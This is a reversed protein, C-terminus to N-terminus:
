KNGPTIKMVARRNQLRGEPTSNDGVPANFGHGVTKLRLPSIGMNTLRTKVANARKLSLANNYAASGRSDTYGNITIIRTKDEKMETAANDILPYYSSHIVYEDFDFLIPMSIDTKAAPPAPPLPAALTFGAGNATCNNMRVIIGSYEGACLNNIVLSGDEKVMGSVAPQALNNLYYSVSVQSGAILGNFRVTGDCAGQITPSATEQSSISMVPNSLTVPEGNAKEKRITAVIGTYDGPCLNPIQVQGDPQVTTHYQNQPAGNLAYDVKVPQDPTLGGLFISGDCSGCETPSIHQTSTIDILTRKRGLFFRVGLNLGYSANNSATVNNLVSSYNGIGDTLRYGAQADNKFPQLMYYGGFNLATRDSLFYNFSPQVLFGVSGQTYSKDGKRVAPSMSEGVSYGLARKKAFYDELDGNPNNQLFEARTILWDNVSPVPSNDYVSVTGGDGNQVFQYIAEYDFSAQTTYKNKMQLNFVAGLDTTFGWRKSFRNKYKLVLPVNINTSVIQEKIDHGTVRQRFINDAGDTARYEAYFDDLVADGQQHMYMLGTGVGFHRKRGFFFGLQADGGFSYGNKYKLEGTNMNLAGPYNAASNATKFNQSALGGLLNIDIVWRPLLSDPLYASKQEQAMASVASVATILLLLLKKM